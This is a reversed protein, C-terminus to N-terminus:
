CRQYAQMDDMTKGRRGEATSSRTRAKAEERSQRRPLTVRTQRASQGKGQVAIGYLRQMKPRVTIVPALHTDTTIDLTM